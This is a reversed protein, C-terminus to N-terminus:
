SPPAYSAESPLEGPQKAVVAELRHFGLLLHEVQDIVVILSPPLQIGLGGHVGLGPKRIM